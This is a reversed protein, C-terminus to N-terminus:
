KGVHRCVARPETAGSRQQDDANLNRRLIKTPSRTPLSPPQTTSRAHDGADQAAEIDRTAREKTEEAEQQAPMRIQTAIKEGDAHPRALMDRM